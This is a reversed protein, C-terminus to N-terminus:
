GSYLMAAHMNCQLCTNNVGPPPGYTAAAPLVAACLLALLLFVHQMCSAIRAPAM